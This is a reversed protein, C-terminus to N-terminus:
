ICPNILCCNKSSKTLSELLSPIVPFVYPHNKKLKSLIQRARVVKGEKILSIALAFWVEWNHKDQKLSHKFVMEANKWREQSLYLYGLTVWLNPHNTLNIREILM